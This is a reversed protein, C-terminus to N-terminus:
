EGSPTPQDVTLRHQVCEETGDECINPIFGHVNEGLTDEPGQCLNQLLQQSSFRALRKQARLQPLQPLALSLKSASARTIPGSSRFNEGLECVSCSFRFLSNPAGQISPPNRKSHKVKQAECLLYEQRRRKQSQCIFQLNPPAGLIHSSHGGRWGSLRPGRQRQLRTRRLSSRPQTPSSFM